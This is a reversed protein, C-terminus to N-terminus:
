GTQAGIDLIEGLEDDAAVVVHHVEHVFPIFCSSDCRGVHVFRSCRKM